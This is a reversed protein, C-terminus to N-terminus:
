TRQKQKFSWEGKEPNILTKAREHYLYELHVSVLKRYLDNKEKPGSNCLEDNFADKAKKLTPFVKRDFEDQPLCNPHCFKTVVHLEYHPNLVTASFDLYIQKL